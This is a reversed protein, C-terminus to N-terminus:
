STSCRKGSRARRSFAAEGTTPLFGGAISRGARRRARDRFDTDFFALGLREALRRGVASKGTGRYGILFVKGSDPPMARESFVIWRM